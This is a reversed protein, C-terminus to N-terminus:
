QATTTKLAEAVKIKRIAASAIREVGREDHQSVIELLPLAETADAGIMGLYKAANARTRGSKGSLAKLLPKVAYKGAGGNVLRRALRVNLKEGQKIAYNSIAEAVEPKYPPHKLLLSVADYRTRQSGEYSLEILKAISEESNLTARQIGYHEYWQPGQNGRACGTMILLVIVIALKTNIV